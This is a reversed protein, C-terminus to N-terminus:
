AIDSRIDSRVTIKINKYDGAIIKVKRGTREVLASDDTSFYKEKFAKRYAKLILPYKFTQPTQALFINKREPTSKIIDGSVIKVTDKVPLAAVASGYKAATKISQRIIDATVFPRVGDHIIVIDTDKEIRNLANFVSHQRTKGGAIVRVKGAEYKRYKKVDEPAFVLLIDTIEKLKLFKSLTIEFIRKKDIRAFQKKSGFRKGSGAAVIIASIKMTKIGNFFFNAVGAQWNTPCSTVPLM